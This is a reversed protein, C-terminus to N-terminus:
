GGLTVAAQHAQAALDTLGAPALVHTSFEELDAIARSVTADPKSAYDVYARITAAALQKAEDDLQNDLLRAVVNHQAEAIAIEHDLAGGAAPVIRELVELAARAADLAQGPAGVGLLPKVLDALDRQVRALDAGPQTAYDRYSAVTPGALAVAPPYEQADRLRVILNHRAENVDILHDLRGEPPPTFATLADLALQQPAIADAFAPPVALQGALKTLEAAAAPVNARPSALYQKYTELLQIAHASLTSTSVDPNAPAPAGPDAAPEHFMVWSSLEFATSM